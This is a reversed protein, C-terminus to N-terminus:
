TKLSNSLVLLSVEHIELQLQQLSILKSCKKTEDPNGRLVVFISHSFMHIININFLFKCWLILMEM